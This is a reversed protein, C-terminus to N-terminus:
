IIFLRNDAAIRSKIEDSIVNKLNILTGIYRFNWVGEFIQGDMILDQKLHAINRNIKMYKTKSENIVLETSIAAEKIQTVVVEIARM